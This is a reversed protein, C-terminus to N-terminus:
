KPIKGTRDYKERKVVDKLIENAANIEQMLETAKDIEQPSGTCRDPHHKLSMKRFAKCIDEQTATRNVGLVDYLHKQIAPEPKIISGHGRTHGYSHNGQDPLPRERKYGHNRDPRRRRQDYSRDFPNPHAREGGLIGTSRHRPQGATNNNSRPHSSYREHFYSPGDDGHNYSSQHREDKTRPVHRSFKVPPRHPSLRNRPLSGGFASHFRPSFEPFPPHSWDHKRNSHGFLPISPQDTNNSFGPYDDRPQQQCQGSRPPPPPPTSQANLSDGQDERQVNERHIPYRHSVRLPELVGGHPNVFTQDKYSPEERRPPLYTPRGPPAVGHSLTTDRRPAYFPPACLPPGKNPLSDLGHRSSPFFDGPQGGRGSGFSAPLESVPLHPVPFDKGLDEMFDKLNNDFALEVEGSRLKTKVSEYIVCPVGALGTKCVKCTPEDTNTAFKCHPCVRQRFTTESGSFHHHNSPM